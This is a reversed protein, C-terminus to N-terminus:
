NQGLIEELEKRDIVEKELLRNALKDLKDRHETLVQIAKKYSEDIIKKVEEDILRATEESYPKSFPGKNLFDMEEIEALSVHGLKESMGYTTVMLRAIETAKKLDDHAGTSIQGFVIEEAARGGLIGAIKGYLEEKTLLYREETPTRLTYGLARISRPIISVKQVVDAGPIYYGVIAHGSEHYAVIRKERESIVKSRKELGAIVREIAEQFDSMEVKDKGKRAALLAAENCVNAIEAGAFGPTQAALTEFDVDDALKLNRAHVKFIAVRGKLDPRSLVIQRDFRGPRLLAPDLVDPRNTAAMIIVGISSDFGDMEVLLQNLTNEREDVGGYVVGRARAKGIADIEDIFIICPAKEKAQAFLDRVRAAGVGVFMEVFDSGSLYFFPVGAEGAIARALLTKGTGPPGVLLVGKPIKAGLRQYKKPNKLFDVIEKVEEIVEDLGAVDNFTVKNKEDAAYIRAKSKGFTMVNQTPSFRRILIAWLIVFFAIPLIWNLLLDRGWNSEVVGRYDIGKEQLEKILNEDPLKVVEVVKPIKERDVIDKKFTVIIKESGIQVAEVDGKSIRDKFEKYSIEKLPPHFIFYQLLILIIVAIIYYAISFQTQKKM